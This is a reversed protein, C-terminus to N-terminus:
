RIERRLYGARGRSRPRRHRRHSWVAQGHNGHHGSVLRPYNAVVSLPVRAELMRTCTTHRIDHFRATKVDEKRKATVWATKWSGIGIPRDPHRTYVGSQRIRETPFVYHNPQRDPVRTAWRQLENLTRDNPPVVRGTGTPTKSQGVTLQAKM